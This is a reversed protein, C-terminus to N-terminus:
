LKYASGSNDATIGEMETEISSNNLDTPQRDDTQDRDSMLDDEPIVQVAWVAPEVVNNSSANHTENSSHLPTSEQQVSAEKNDINHQLKVNYTSQSLTENQLSINNKQRTHNQEKAKNNRNFASM